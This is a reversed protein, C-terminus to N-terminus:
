YLLVLYNFIYRFLDLWIDCKDIFSQEMFIKYLRFWHDYCNEYKQRSKMLETGLYGWQCLISGVCKNDLFIKRYINNYYIQNIFLVNHLTQTQKCLVIYIECGNICEHKLDFNFQDNWSLIKKIFAYSKKCEVCEHKKIPENPNATGTAGTQGTPGTVGTVGSCLLDLELYKVDDFLFTLPGDLNTSNKSKSLPILQNIKFYHHYTHDYGYSSTNSTPKEPIPISKGLKVSINRIEYSDGYISECQNTYLDSNNRIGYSDEYVKQPFSNNQNEPYTIISHNILFNKM